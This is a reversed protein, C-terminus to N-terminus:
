PQGKRWVVEVEALGERMRDQEQGRPTMFDDGTEGEDWLGWRWATRVFLGVRVWWGVWVYLRDCQEKRSEWGGLSVSLCSLFSRILLIETNLICLTAHLVLMQLYQKVATEMAVVNTWCAYLLHKGKIIKLKTYVALALVAIHHLVTGM